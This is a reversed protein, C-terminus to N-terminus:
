YNVQEISNKQEKIELCKIIIIVCAGRIIILLANRIVYSPSCSRYVVMIFVQSISKPIFIYPVQILVSFGKREEDREDRKRLYFIFKDRETIM